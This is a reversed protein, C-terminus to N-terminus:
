EGKEERDGTSITWSQRGTVPGGGREGMEREEFGASRL